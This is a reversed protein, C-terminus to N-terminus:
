DKLVYNINIYTQIRASILDKQFWFLVKPLSTETRKHGAQLWDFWFLFIKFENLSVERALINKKIHLFKMTGECLKDFNKTMSVLSMKELM